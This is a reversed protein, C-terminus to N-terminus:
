AALVRAPGHGADLAIALRLEEEADAVRGLRLLVDALVTHLHPSEPDFLLAERLASAAAPLDDRNKALLGEVYHRYALSSVYPRAPRQATADRIADADSRPPPAPAIGATAAGHACAAACLGLLAAALPNRRRHHPPAETM